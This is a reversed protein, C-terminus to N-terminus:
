YVFDERWQSKRLEEIPGIRSKLFRWFALQEPSSYGTITAGTTSKPLYTELAQECGEYLAFIENLNLDHIYSYILETARRYGWFKGEMPIAANYEMSLTWRVSADRLLEYKQAEDACHMARERLFVGWSAYFRALHELIFPRIRPNGRPILHEPRFMLRSIDENERFIRETQEFDQSLGKIRDKNCSRGEKQWRYVQAWLKTVMAAFAWLPAQEKAEQYFIEWERDFQTWNSELSALDRLIQLRTHQAEWYLPSQPPIQESAENVRKLAEELNRQRREKNPSREPVYELRLATAETLLAASRARSHKVYEAIRRAQQALELAAKYHEDQLEAKALANLSLALAGQVGMLRRLNLADILWARAESPSGIIARLSGLANLTAAQHYALNLARWRPLAKLYREWALYSLGDNRAAHGQYHWLFGEILRLLWRHIAWKDRKAKNDIRRYNEELEKRLRKLTNEGEAPKSSTLPAVFRVQTLLAFLYTTIQEPTLSEPLQPQTALSPEITESDIQEQAWRKAQEFAKTETKLYELVEQIEELRAKWRQRVQEDEHEEAEIRGYVEEQWLTQAIEAGILYAFNVDQAFLASERLTQYPVLANRLPSAFVLDYHLKTVQLDQFENAKRTLEEITKKTFLDGEPKPEFKPEFIDRMERQFNHIKERFFQQLKQWVREKISERELLHRRMMDYIEDHLFIRQDHPRVKVFVYRQERLKNLIGQAFELPMDLLRALLDADVGKRLWALMETLYPVELAAEVEDRLAEILAREVERLTPKHSGEVPFPFESRRTYYDLTLALYIPRVGWEQGQEDTERLLDYIQPAKELIRELTEGELIRELAEETNDRFRAHGVVEIYEKVESRTFGKLEIEEFRVAEPPQLLRRAEPRGGMFVTTNALQPLFEGSLWQWFEPALISMQESLGLPLVLRELTDLFLLVRQSRAIKNFDQLLAEGVEKEAQVVKRQRARAQYYVQIAETTGDFQEKVTSNSLAGLVAQAFGVRTHLNTHYLDLIGIPVVQSQEQAWNQLDQLLLTKGVGGRGTIFAWATGKARALERLRQREQHRGILQPKQMSTAQTM